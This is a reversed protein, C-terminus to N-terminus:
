EHRLAAVPEVRAARRAPLAAAVTTIAVAFLPVGIVLWTPFLFLTEPPKEMTQEAM